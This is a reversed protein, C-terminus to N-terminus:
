RQIIERSRDEDLALLENITMGYADEIDALHEATIEDDETLPQTNSDIM